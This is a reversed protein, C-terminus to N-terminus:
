ANVTGVEFSVKQKKALAKQYLALYAEASIEWSLNQAMGNKQLQKWAKKDSFIALARKITVLLSTATVSELVFGNATKNKQTLANTDTM